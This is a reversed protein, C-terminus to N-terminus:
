GRPSIGGPGVPGPRPHSGHRPCVRPDPRRDSRAPGAPADGLLLRHDVGPRRRLRVGAGRHGGHRGVGRRADWPGVPVEPCAFVVLRSGDLWANWSPYPTLGRREQRAPIWDQLAAIRVSGVRVTGAEGLGSQAWESLVAVLARREDDRLGPRAACWALARIRGLWARPDLPSPLLDTELDARALFAGLARIAPGLSAGSLNPYVRLNALGRAVAGDEIAVSAPLLPPLRERLAALREQLDTAMVLEVTREASRGPAFVGALADAVAPEDVFTALRAVSELADMAASAQDLDDGTLAALREVIWATRVPALASAVAAEEFVPDGMASAMAVRLEEQLAPAAWVPDRPRVEDSLDARSPVNTGRAWGRLDLPGELVWPVGLETLLDLLDLDGPVVAAAGEAAVDAALLSASRRALQLPWGSGPGAWTAFRSFWGVRSPTPLAAPDTSADWLAALAGCELLLQMWQERGEDHWVKPLLDLLRGRVAPDGEALALLVPRVDAWFSAPALALGSAGIVSRLFRSVLSEPDFSAVRACVRLDEVLGSWPARGGNVQRVAQALLWDCVAAAEQGAPLEFGASEVWSERDALALASGALQARHEGATFGLLEMEAHIGDAEEQTVLRVVVRDTLGRHTFSVAGVAGASLEDAGNGDLTEDPHPATVRSLESMLSSRM